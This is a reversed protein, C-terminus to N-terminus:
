SAFHADSIRQRHRVLNERERLLDSLTEDCWGMGRDLLLHTYAFVSADFLSPESLGFFNQDNGLLTSLAGFAKAAEAYLVEEDICPSEKLLEERAAAKLQYALTARVVSSSSTPNIYLKRAVSDFNRDDLYLYFLWASRIRHDLLSSYAEYRMTSPEEPLSAQSAIWRMLRNSPIPTKVSDSTEAPLLFPLAGTPSAHNNSPFTRFTIGRM